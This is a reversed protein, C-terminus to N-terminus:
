DLLETRGAAQARPSIGSCFETCDHTAVVAEFEAPECDSFFWEDGTRSLEVTDGSGRFVVRVRFANAALLVGEKAAGRSDRIIVHM